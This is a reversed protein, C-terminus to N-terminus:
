RPSLMTVKPGLPAVGVDPEDSTLAFSSPVIAYHWRLLTRYAALRDNLEPSPKVLTVLSYGALRVFIGVLSVLRIQRAAREGYHKYFFRYRSRQTELIVRVPYRGRRRGGVHIVQADPIYGVRWGSKWVRFCLDADEFQHFLREDFGGLSQLLHRRLLLCCGAQFGVDRATQGAWGVYTDAVFADSLHGLFRLYLAAILYSRVTPIPHASKQYSLDPNLVRCGLAGVDPNADAHDVLKELAHDLILTDPNLILVYEGRARFIARNNGGAFGLNCGNDQVLVHPFANRLYDITGDTSGNDTVIIEPDLSGAERHISALCRGLDERDNWSIIVVSLKM